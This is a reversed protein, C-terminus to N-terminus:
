EALASSFRADLRAIIEDTSFGLAALRGSRALVALGTLTAALLLVEVQEARIKMSRGTAQSLATLAAILRGNFQRESEGTGPRVPLAASAAAISETSQLLTLAAASAAALPTAGNHRQAASRMARSIVVLDDAALALLLEDKSEFYSYLAAPAFGAEAAAARLSLNRAGDRAAVRRAAELIAGRTAERTRARRARRAENVMAMRRLFLRNAPFRASARANLFAADRERMKGPAIPYDTLERVPIFRM